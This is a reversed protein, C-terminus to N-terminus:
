YPAQGRSELLAKRCLRKARRTPESACPGTGRVQRAVQPAYGSPYGQGQPAYGSPYGPPPGQPYGPPPGQPGYGPPPGQPYGPPPGQPGYGQPAYGQPPGQPGYGPPAYGPPYSQGQPAYGQPPGVQAYTQAQPYNQAGYGQPAQQSQQAVEADIARHDIPASAVIDDRFRGFTARDGDLLATLAAARSADSPHDSLATVQSSNGNEQYNRFSWVMGWPNFGAKACTYAGAHDANSEAQRHSDAAQNREVLGQQYFNYVDHHIDHNVEHCLVGALEDRNRVMALLSTTVYVNGGPVSFANPTRENVLYFHFPTFYQANAVAAVKNAVPQLTAYLPSQPPLIEGKQMLQMYRQQGM